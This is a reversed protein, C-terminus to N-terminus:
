ECKLDYEQTDDDLEANVEFVVMPVTVTGKILESLIEDKNKPYVKLVM